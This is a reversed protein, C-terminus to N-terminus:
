ACHKQGRTGSARHGVQNGKADQCSNLVMFLSACVDSLRTKEEGLCVLLSAAATTDMRAGGAGGWLVISSGLCVVSGEVSPVFCLLPGEVMESNM